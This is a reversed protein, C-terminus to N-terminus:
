LEVQARTWGVLYRDRTCNQRENLMRWLCGAYACNGDCDLLADPNRQKRTLHHHSVLQQPPSWLEVLQLQPLSRPLLHLHTRPIRAPRLPIHVPKTPCDIRTGRRFADDDDTRRSGLPFREPHLGCMQRGVATDEDVIDVVMTGVAATDEAVVEGVIDVVVEGEVVAVVNDAVLEVEVVVEGM